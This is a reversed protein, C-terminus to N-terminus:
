AEFDSRRPQVPDAKEEITQRERWPKKQQYSELEKKLQDDVEKEEVGLEVAKNSWKVAAEFDGTEAYAAALTSLIHAKKYETVECAKTALKIARAGDRLKDDPSTALVWAFNNLISDDAPEQKLLIEFDAIAEAHKGTSLLTDARAQRAFFDEDDEALIKTFIDLAKSPRRDKIYYGALQLRWAVNKPDQKLLSEIDAIADGVRGEEAYIMSRMLVGQSLGPSILLVREVDDKAAAINDQSLYLRARIVLATVDRPEIKIAQDLDTLAGDVDQKLVKLRARLTYGLPSDPKLQIAKEIHPLAEDLKELNTLAEALALHANANNENQKLLSNFDEIAKDAEGQDLHVLARAQWADANSPDLDIAQAYDQLQAEPKDRFGGRLVLAAAKKKKDEDFLNVAAGAAKAGREADGGPLAHLRAVLLHADGLTPSIEVVRELDQLAFQRLLPWRRDPPAQEFIPGCLQEAHQYLTSSLLQKAFPQNSEDLGKKLASECLKAVKELDSLSEATVQLETAKDLDAQGENAALALPASIVTLAIFCVAILAFLGARTM